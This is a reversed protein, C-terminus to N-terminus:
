QNKGRTLTKLRSLALLLAFSRTRKSLHTLIQLCSISKSKEVWAATALERRPPSKNRFYCSSKPLFPFRELQGGRRPGFSSGTLAFFSIIRIAFLTQFLLPPSLCFTLLLFLFKSHSIKFEGPDKCM